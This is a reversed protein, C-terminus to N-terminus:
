AVISARYIIPFNSKSLSKNGTKPWFDSPYCGDTLLVCLSQIPHSLILINIALSAALMIQLTVVVGLKSKLRTDLPMKVLGWFHFNQSALFIRGLPTKVLPSWIRIITDTSKDRPSTLTRRTLNLRWSRWLSWKVSCIPSRLCYLRCLRHDGVFNLRYRYKFCNCTGYSKKVHNNVIRVNYNFITVNHFWNEKGLYYSLM